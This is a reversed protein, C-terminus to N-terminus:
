APSTAESGLKWYGGLDRLELQRTQSQWSAVPIPVSNMSRWISSWRRLVVLGRAILPLTTYAAAGLLWSFSPRRPCRRADPGGFTAIAGRISTSAAPALAIAGFAACITALVQVIAAPPGGARAAEERARIQARWWVASAAPVVAEAEPATATRSSRGAIGRRGGCGAALSTAACSSTPRNPWRRATVADLLEQEFPCHLKM